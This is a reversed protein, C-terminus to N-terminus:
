FIIKLGVRGSRRGGSVFDYNLFRGPLGTSTNIGLTNGVDNGPVGTRQPHNFINFSEFRLEFKLRENYRFIKFFSMDFNQVPNARETNRGLASTPIILNAGTNTAVQVVYVDNRSVCGSGATSSLEPSRFGTACAADIIGRTNHPANPNGIDPRDNGSQGDGDRDLGNLITFPAGSQFTTVGNIRWGGLLKGAWDNRGRFLPVDWVYAFTFRHSRHYDSIGRDAILGGLYPPFSATSAGGTQGTAFVESVQDILKSWTYAATFLLGQSFRKDLRFQAAHYDSNAGSTRYRRV